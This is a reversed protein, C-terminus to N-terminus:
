RKEKERLLEEVTVREKLIEVTKKRDRNYHRALILWALGSFYWFVMTFAAPYKLNGMLDSLLGVVAIGLSKSILEMLNMGSLVTARHEPLNVETIVSNRIPGVSANFFMAIFFSLFAILVMKDSILFTLVGYIADSFSDTYLNLKADITFFIIFLIAEAISCIGALVTKYTPNKQYFYDAVQSLLIGGMAGTSMLGLFISAGIESAGMDRIIYHITWTFIVGNPITGFIGQLTLYINSKNLALLKMDKINFRYRYEIGEIVAIVEELDSMARKPEYILLSLPAGIFLLAAGGILIALRWHYFTGAILSILYGIGLGFGALTYLLMFIRVRASGRFVDSIISFGLPIIAGLSGGALIWFLLFLMPNLSLYSLILFFGGGSFGLFLLIKRKFGVADSVFSWGIAALANFLLFGGTLVGLYLDTVNMDAKIINYNPIILYSVMNQLM